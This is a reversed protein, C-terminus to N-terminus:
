HIKVKKAKLKFSLTRMMLFNSTKTLVM